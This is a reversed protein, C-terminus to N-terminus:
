DAEALWELAGMDEVGKRGDGLQVAGEELKRVAM